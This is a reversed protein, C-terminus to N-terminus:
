FANMLQFPKRILLTHDNGVKYLSTVAGPMSVVVQIDRGLGGDICMVGFAILLAHHAALATLTLWDDLGWTM